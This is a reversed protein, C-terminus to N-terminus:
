WCRRYVWMNHVLRYVFNIHPCGSFESSRSFSLFPLLAWVHDWFPIGHKVRPAKCINAYAARISYLMHTHLLAHMQHTCCSHVSQKPNFTQYFGCSAATPESPLIQNSPCEVAPCSPPEPSDQCGSGHGSLCQQAWHLQVCQSYARSHQGQGRGLSPKTYCAQPRNNYNSKFQLTLVATSACDLVGNSSSGCLM